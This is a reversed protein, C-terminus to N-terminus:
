TTMFSIEFYLFQAPSLSRSSHSMPEYIHVPGYSSVGYSLYSHFLINRQISISYIVSVHNRSIKALLLSTEARVYFLLQFGMGKSVFSLSFFPFLTV